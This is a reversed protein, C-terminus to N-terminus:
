TAGNSDVASAYFSRKLIPTNTLTSTYPGTTNNGSPGQDETENKPYQRYFSDRELTFYSEYGAIYVPPNVGLISNVPLTYRDENRVTYFTYTEHLNWLKLEAPMDLEYFDDIYQDIESDPLQLPSPTATLRRVKQRIRQLTTM